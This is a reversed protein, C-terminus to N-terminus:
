CVVIFFLNLIEPSINARATDIVAQLPFLDLELPSETVVVEVDTLSVVRCASEVTFTSVMFRDVSVDSV